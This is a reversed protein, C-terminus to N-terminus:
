NDRKKGKKLRDPTPMLEEPNGFDEVEELREDSQKPPEIDRIEPKPERKIFQEIPQEIPFTSNEIKQPVVEGTIAQAHGQKILRIGIDDPVDEVRGSKDIGDIVVNNYRILM